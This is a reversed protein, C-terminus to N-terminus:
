TVKLRQLMCPGWRMKTARMRYADVTGPRAMCVAPKSSSPPPATLMLKQKLECILSCGRAPLHSLPRWDVLFWHKLWRHRRPLKLRLRLPSSELIVMALAWNLSFRRHM